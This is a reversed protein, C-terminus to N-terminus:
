TNDPWLSTNQTNNSSMKGEFGDWHTCCVQEVGFDGNEIRGM